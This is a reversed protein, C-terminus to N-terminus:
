GCIPAPADLTPSPCGGAHGIPIPASLRSSALSMVAIVVVFAVVILLLLSRRSMTKM